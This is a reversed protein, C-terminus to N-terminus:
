QQPEPPSSILGHYAARARDVADNVLTDLNGYRILVLGVMETLAERVAKIADAPPNDAPSQLANIAELVLDSWETQGYLACDNAMQKLRAILAERDTM